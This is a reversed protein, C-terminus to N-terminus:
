ENVKNDPDETEDVDEPLEQIEFEPVTASDIEEEDKPIYEPNIRDHVVWAHPYAQRVFQSFLIADSRNLFDGVHVRYNPQRFSVYTEPMYDVDLTDIWMIFQRQVSDAKQVDPTSLIQVRFGHNRNRREEQNQVSRFSEPVTNQLMAYNDSLRNRYIKLDFDLETGSELREEEELETETAFEETAKDLLQEMEEKELEKTSSCSFFFLSLGLLLITLIRM